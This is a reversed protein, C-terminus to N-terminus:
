EPWNLLFSIGHLTRSHANKAGTFFVDKFKSQQLFSAFQRSRTVVLRPRRPNKHLWPAMTHKSIWAFQLSRSGDTFIKIHTEHSKTRETSHLGFIDGIYSILCRAVAFDRQSIINVSHLTCVDKDAAGGM